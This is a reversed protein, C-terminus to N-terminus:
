FLFKAGFQIVRPDFVSTISGFNGSTFTTGVGNFQTHNFTNFTETRFEFRAGEPNGPWPIRFAKFLAINWNDRGPGAITGRGTAGWQLPAPAAFSTKSFWLDVTHPYSIAAVTNPRNTTNGGLGLNDNGLTVTLPVGTEITTIGSVVWGGLLCRALSHRATDRFVPLDYVYTFVAVHRRDFFSSGRDYNRDFPNSLTNLDGGTPAIDIAHSYTYAGSLTLGHRANMRLGVQFSHYSSTGAAETETVSAIGPYLRDRNPDYRTGTYGCTGGCIALRNPSSPVVPNM